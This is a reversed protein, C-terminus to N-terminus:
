GFVTGMGEAAAEDEKKIAKRVEESNNAEEVDEESFIKTAKEVAEESGEIMVYNVDKDLGLSDGDRISITQRSILDDSVVKSIINDSEQKVEFVKYM